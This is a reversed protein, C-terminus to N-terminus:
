KEKWLGPRPQRDDRASRAGFHYVLWDDTVDKMESKGGNNGSHMM